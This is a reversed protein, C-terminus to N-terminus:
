PQFDSIQEFTQNPKYIFAHTNIILMLLPIFSRVWPILSTSGILIQSKTPM